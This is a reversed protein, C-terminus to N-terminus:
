GALNPHFASRFTKGANVQRRSKCSGANALAHKVLNLMRWSALAIAPKYSRTVRTNLVIFLELFWLVFCLCIAFCVSFPKINKFRNGQCGIVILAGGVGIEKM